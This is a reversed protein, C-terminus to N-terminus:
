WGRHPRRLGSLNTLNRPVSLSKDWTECWEWSRTKMDYRRCYGLGVNLEQWASCYRCWKAIEQQDESRRPLTV